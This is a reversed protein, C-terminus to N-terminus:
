PGGGGGGAGFLSVGLHSTSIPLCVHNSSSSLPGNPMM